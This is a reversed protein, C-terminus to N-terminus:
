SWMLVFNGRTRYEDEAEVADIGDCIAVRRWQAPQAVGLCLLAAAATSSAPQHPTSPARTVAHGVEIWPIAVSSTGAIKNLSFIFVYTTVKLWFPTVKVTIATWGCANSCSLTSLAGECFTRRKSLTTESNLTQDVNIQLHDATNSPM